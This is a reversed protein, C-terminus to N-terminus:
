LDIVGQNEITVYKPTGTNNEKNSSKFEKNAKKFIKEFKEM